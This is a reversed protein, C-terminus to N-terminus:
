ADVKVVQREAETAKFLPQKKSHMMNAVIVDPFQKIRINYNTVSDNYFERRDAIMDEIQSIRKQLALFNENAKLQPYNEAVAFLSKLMGSLQENAAAKQAMGSAQLMATRAKTINELVEKEHKAYGKVTAVLNPVEDNRQKLLVDINASSKSINNKLTILGNFITIIYAIIIALVVVIGVIVATSM